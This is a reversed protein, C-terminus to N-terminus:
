ISVHRGAGKKKKKIAQIDNTTEEPKKKTNPNKLVRKQEVM